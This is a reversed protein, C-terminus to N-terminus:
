HASTAPAKPAPQVGSGDCAECGWYGDWDEGSGECVECPVETASHVLRLAPQTDSDATAGGGRLGLLQQGVEANVADRRARLQDGQALLNEIRLRARSDTTFTLLAEVEERGAKTTAHEIAANDFEVEHGPTNATALARQFAPRTHTACRQGGEAASKCM